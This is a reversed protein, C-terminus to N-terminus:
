SPMGCTRRSALGRGVVLRLGACFTDWGEFPEYNDSFMLSCRCLKVALFLQRQVLTLVQSPIRPLFSLISLHLIDPLKRKVQSRGGNAGVEVKIGM